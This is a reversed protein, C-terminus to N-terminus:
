KQSSEGVPCDKLDVLIPGSLEVLKKTYPKVNIRKGRTILLFALNMFVFCSDGPLSLIGSCMAVGQCVCVAWDMGSTVATCKGLTGCLEAEPPLLWTGTHSM